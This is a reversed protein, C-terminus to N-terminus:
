RGALPTQLGAIPNQPDAPPIQLGALSTQPGTLLSPHISTDIFPRVSASFKEGNLLVAAARGQGQEAVRYSALNAVIVNKSVEADM